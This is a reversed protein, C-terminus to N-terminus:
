RDKEKLLRQLLYDQEKFHRSITHLILGVFISLLGSLVCGVSLVAMPVRHVIGTSYYDNVVILGPVVGCALIFLGMAGFITLPKYDRTLAFITNLILMGDRFIKIKSRSGEIRPSLNVPIEMIRYGREFCKVTLETEVEFGRSLLPMSKVVERRFARYGSLLDSINMKFITNLVFLFIKNGLLNLLRFRSDSLTHLRSGITMDADGMIIPNILEHVKQSPYTGDGDVIVFVDAEIDAFMSRIVNGKGQRKEYRVIAGAQRSSEATNDTSNNDFVYIDAEPLQRRFDKIVGSITREENYCPILVAIKKM